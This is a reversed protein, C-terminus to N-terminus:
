KLEGTIRRFKSQIRTGAPNVCLPRPLNWPRSCSAPLRLLDRGNSEQAQM